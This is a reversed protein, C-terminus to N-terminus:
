EMARYLVVSERQTPTMRRLLPRLSEPSMRAGTFDAKWIQLGETCAGVLDAERFSSRNARAWGLDCLGLCAHDLRAGELSAHCLSAGLLNVGELDAGDLKAWDLKAGALNARRLNAGSLDARSLDMETLPLRELNRGSLRVPTGTRLQMHLDALISSQISM